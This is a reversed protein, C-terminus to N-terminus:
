PSGIAVLGSREMALREAVDERAASGEGGEGWGNSARWCVSGAFPLGVEIGGNSGAVSRERSPSGFIAGGEDAGGPINGGWTSMFSLGMPFRAMLECGCGPGATDVGM